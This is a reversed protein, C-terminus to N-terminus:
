NLERNLRTITEEVESKQNECVCNKSFIALAKIANKLNGRDLELDGLEKWLSIAYPALTTMRELLTTARSLDSDSIARTKVNNMSRLLIDRNSIASYHHPRLESENGLFQKLISRMQTVNVIEGKNFPDVIKRKGQVDLRVLFHGPFSLGEAVWRQSRAAHIYLIGLTIPLGKRRDIVRILNANQPDDYTDSDGVYSYKKFLVKNIREIRADLGHSLSKENSVDDAISLLHKRYLELDIKPYDYKGVALAADALNIEEDEIISLDLLSLDNTGRTEIIM